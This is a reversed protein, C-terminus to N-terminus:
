INFFSIIDYNSLDLHLVSGASPEVNASLLNYNIIYQGPKSNPLLVCIHDLITFCEFIYYQCLLGNIFTSNIISTFNIALYNEIQNFNALSM